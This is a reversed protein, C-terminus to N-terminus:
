FLLSLSRNRIEILCYSLTVTRGEKQGVRISEDSVFFNHFGKERPENREGGM